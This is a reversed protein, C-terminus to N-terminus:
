GSSPSLEQNLRHLYALLEAVATYLELPIEEGLECAALLQVLDPDSRVPIGRDEALELIREATAGRGKAVVDPALQAAPDYRLAVVLRAPDRQPDSM